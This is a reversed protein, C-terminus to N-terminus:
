GSKYPDPATGGTRQPPLTKPRIGKWREGVPCARMCEICNDVDTIYTQGAEVLLDRRRLHGLIMRIFGPWEKLSAPPLRKFGYSWYVFCPDVDYRGDKLAGSPCSKVCRGCGTCLSLERAPDPELPAETVIACLRQHPGFEPTILLNNRGIEGMGCSVAAHKLSLFGVARTQRFKRGTAPDIKVIEVPKDASIPLSLFGERELMRGIKEATSDLLRSTQMKSRTWLMIDPSCVAGLSHAVAMVIVSRATPMLATAPRPPHALILKEADAIGVLDIGEARILEKLSGADIRGSKGFPLSDM